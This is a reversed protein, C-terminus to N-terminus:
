TSKVCNVCGRGELYEECYRRFGEEEDESAPLKLKMDALLDLVANVDPSERRPFRGTEAYQLWDSSNMTFCNDKIRIYYDKWFLSITDTQRLGAYGWYGGRKFQEIKKDIDFFDKYKLDTLYYEDEWDEDHSNGETYKHGGLVEIFDFCKSLYQLCDLTGQKIYQRAIWKDM